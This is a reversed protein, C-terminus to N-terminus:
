SAVTISRTIEVAGRCLEHGRLFGRVLRGYDRGGQRFVGSGGCGGCRLVTADGRSGASRFEDVVAPSMVSPAM